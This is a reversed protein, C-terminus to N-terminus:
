SRTERPTSPPSSGTRRCGRSSSRRRGHNGSRGQRRRVPDLGPRRGRHPHRRRGPLAGGPLVGAHCGPERGSGPRRGPRGGGGPRLPRVGPGAGGPGPPRYAAPGPGPAAAGGQREDSRYQPHDHDYRSITNKSTASSGTPSTWSGDHFISAALAASAGTQRFVDVFHEPGGAGGSAIVPVSVAAAIEGTIALDFGDRGGDSDIVNLLIEGAGRAVAEGAWDRCDQEVTRTASHTTVLWRDGERRTDVSIVVCQSGFEGALDTLLAPNRLAASNLAVKDAGARLLERADEVSRVGGGVTFPVFIERSLNRVLELTLSEDNLSASVNLFCLEDAGGAVHHRALELPDGVDKLGQFRVGKVVRGSRVDLCPIIRRTLM